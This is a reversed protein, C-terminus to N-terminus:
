KIIYCLEFSQFDISLQLCEHPIDSYYTWDTIPGKWGKNYDIQVFCKCSSCGMSSGFSRIIKVDERLFHNFKAATVLM